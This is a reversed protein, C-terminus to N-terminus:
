TKSSHELIPNVSWNTRQLHSCQRLHKARRKRRCVIHIVVAQKLELFFFSVEGEFFELNQWAEDEEARIIMLMDRRSASLGGQMSGAGKDDASKRAAVQVEKAEGSTKKEKKQTVAAPIPEDPDPPPGDDSDSDDGGGHSRKNKKSM